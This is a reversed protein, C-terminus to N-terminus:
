REPYSFEILLVKKDPDDVEYRVNMPIFFETDVPEGEFKGPIWKGGSNKIHTLLRSEFENGSSRVIRFDKTEGSKTVIFSFLATGAEPFNLTKTYSYAKKVLEMRLDSFGGILVPVTDLEEMIWQGDYNFHSLPINKMNLYTIKERDYDFRQELKGTRYDYFEWVGSRLNAKFQGKAILVGFPTTKVYKGNRIRKDSKLVEFEEITQLTKRTITKLEQTYGSYLGLTLISTILLRNLLPAWLKNSPLEGCRECM